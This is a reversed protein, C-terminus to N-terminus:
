DTLKIGNDTELGEVNINLEDDENDSAIEQIMIAIDEKVEYYKKDIEDIKKVISEGNNEDPYQLFKKCDTSLNCLKSVMDLLNSNIRNIKLKENM